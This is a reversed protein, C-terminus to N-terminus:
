FDDPANARYHTAEPIEAKGGQYLELTPIRHRNMESWVRRKEAPPLSYGILACDFHETRLAAKLEQINAAPTVKFGALTLVRSRVEAMEPDRSVVLIHKPRVMTCANTSQSSRATVIVAPCPTPD